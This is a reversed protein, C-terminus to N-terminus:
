QSVPIDLNSESEYRSELIGGGPPSDFDVPVYVKQLHMDTSGPGLNDLHDESIVVSAEGEGQATFEQAVGSTNEGTLYLEVRENPELVDGTWNLVYTEDVFLSDLEPPFGIPSPVSITNSYVNGDGDTYSFTGSEVLGELQIEYTSSTNVWNLSSGNFTLSAGPVLQILAGNSGDYRFTTRAYTNESDAEYVLRHHAWVNKNEGEPEKDKCGFSIVTLFIFAIPTPLRNM